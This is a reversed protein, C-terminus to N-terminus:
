FSSLEKICKCVIGVCVLLPQDLKFRLGRVIVFNKYQSELEVSGYYKLIILGSLLFWCNFYRSLHVSWWHGNETSDGLGEVFGSM